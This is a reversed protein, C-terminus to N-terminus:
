SSETRDSELEVTGDGTVGHVRLPVDTVVETGSGDETRVQGNYRVMLPEGPAQAQREMVDRLASVHPEDVNVVGHIRVAPGRDMQSDLGGSCPVRHERDNRDRYALTGETNM